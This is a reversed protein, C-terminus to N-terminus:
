AEGGAARRLRGRAADYGLAPFHSLLKAILQPMPEASKVLRQAMAGVPDALQILPSRIITFDELAATRSQFIMKEKSLYLVADMRGAVYGSGRNEDMLAFNDGGNKRAHSILICAAPRCAAHITNVVDRMHGSDNEDGSHIERLTDIIVVEAGCAAIAEKLWAFGEGMINFPYPAMLSDAFYVNPTKPFWREIRDSWLGRPTDVQLYAVKGHLHIPFGVVSPIEPDGVAQAIQLALFSKHSKPKGYINLLGSTPLIDEVVWSSPHRPQALYEIDPLFSMLLGELAKSFVHHEIFILNLFNACNHDRRQLWVFMHVWGRNNM